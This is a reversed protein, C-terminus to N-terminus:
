NLEFKTITGNRTDCKMTKKQSKVKGKSDTTIVNVRATVDVRGGSMKDTDKLENMTVNTAGFEVARSKAEALCIQTAVDRADGTPAVAPAPAPAVAPAPASVSAPAATAGDPAVQATATGALAFLGAAIILNRM